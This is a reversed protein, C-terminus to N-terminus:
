GSPARWSTVVDCGAVCGEPRPLLRRGRCRRHVRREASSLRKLRRPGKRNSKLTPRLPNRVTLPQPHARATHLLAIAKRRAPRPCKAAVPATQARSRRGRAGPWRITLETRGAVAATRTRDKLERAGEGARLMEAGASRAGRMEAGASKM